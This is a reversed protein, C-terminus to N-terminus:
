EKRAAHFILDHGESSHLRLTSNKELGDIRYTQVAQTARNTLHMWFGGETSVVEYDWTSVAPGQETPVTFEVATKQGATVPAFLYMSM